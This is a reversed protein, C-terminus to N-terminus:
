ETEEKDVSYIHWRLEPTSEDREVEAIVRRNQKHAVENMEDVVLQAFSYGIATLRSQEIGFQQNLVAIVADARNQSLELNHEYSGTKSCHGEITVTTTPYKRMFTAIGEIEGYYVPDIFYSDNSFLIKLEIRDKVTNVAGCGYNDTSAGELTEDCLERAVIVGDRDLDNLDHVQKTPQDMTVIDRSSCASLLIITFICILIKM